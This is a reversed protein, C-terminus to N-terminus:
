AADAILANEVLMMHTSVSDVLPNWTTRHRSWQQWMQGQFPFFSLCQLPRGDSRTVAPFVNFMDLMTTPYRAPIRVMLSIVAPTFASPLIYDSIVLAFSGNDPILQWKFGTANLYEIDDASLPSFRGADGNNARKPATEFREIGRASFDVVEAPEIKERKAGHLKQTLSWDAPLKNVLRLIEAGSMSHQHVTIPQKDVIIKYSKAKRPKTGHKAHHELDEIEILVIDEVLIMDGQSTTVAEIKVIEEAVVMVEHDQGHEHKGAMAKNRKLSAAEHGSGIDSFRVNEM